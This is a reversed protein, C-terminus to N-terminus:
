KEMIEKKLEEFYGTFQEIRRSLIKNFEDILRDYSIALSYTHVPRGKSEKKIENKNIWGSRRLYKVAVSVEPQRLGTAAEVDNARINKGGSLIICALTKAPNKPFGLKVLLQAVNELKGESIERM